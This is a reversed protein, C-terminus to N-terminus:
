TNPQSLGLDTEKRILATKFFFGCCFWIFSSTLAQREKQLQKFIVIEKKAGNTSCQLQAVPIDIGPRTGERGQGQDQGESMAEQRSLHDTGSGSSQRQVQEQGPNALKGEHSRILSAVARAM